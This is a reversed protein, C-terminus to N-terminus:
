SLSPPKLDGLTAQPWAPQVVTHSSDAHCLQCQLQEALPSGGPARKPLLQVLMHTFLSAVSADASM